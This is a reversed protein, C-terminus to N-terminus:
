PGAAALRGALRDAVVQDRQEARDPLLTSARAPRIMGQRIGSRSGCGRAAVLEVLVDDLGAPLQHPLHQAAAHAGPSSRASRSTSTAIASSSRGSAPGSAHQAPVGIEVVATGLLDTSATSSPAASQGRAQAPNPDRRASGPPRRTAATRRLGDPRGLLTDFVRVASRRPLLRRARARRRGPASGTRPRRPRPRARGARCAPRRSRPGCRDRVVIQRQAQQVQVLREVSSTASCRGSADGDLPHEALVVDAGHHAGRLGARDRHQGARPGPQRHLRVRGLSTLAATVPEPWASLACTVAMTSGAAAAPRAARAPRRRRRAPAPWRGRTARRCGRGLQGRGASAACSRPPAVIIALTRPTTAAIPGSPATTSTPPTPRRRATRGPVRAASRTPAAPGAPWWGPRGPPSASGRRSRRRRRALLQELQQLGGAPDPGRSAWATSATCVGSTTRLAIASPSVAVSVRTGPM